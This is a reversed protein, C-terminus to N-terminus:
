ESVSFDTYYVYLLIDTMGATEIDRNAAEDRLNLTLEWFSNIFPRDKFRNNEYVAPDFNAYKQGQFFPNIVATIPPFRYFEKLGDQGRVTATGRMTLYLRAVRDGLGTGQLDAEIHDIKHTGTRPSVQDFTTSFPVAIYGHGDILGPDTLRKRFEGANGNVSEEGGDAASRPIRFIDHALSIIALRLEPLGNEEEFDRYARQLDLVYNELNDDGRKALRALFLEGRPGYSQNTYYELVRTARYADTLADEFSRDADLVAANRYIRVNADNRAVEVNILLQDAESQQANLRIVSQQQSRVKSMAIRVSLEARQLNLRSNLLEVMLTDIQARSNALTPGPSECSGTFVGAADAANDLCCGAIAKDFDAGRRVDSIATETARIENEKTTIEDNAAGQMGAIVGGGIALAAGAVVGAVGIWGGMAGAGIASFSDRAVGISRDILAMEREAQAIDQNLESVQTEINSVQGAVEFQINAIDVRADCEDQVRQREIEAEAFLNRIARISLQVELRADDVLGISQFIAGNQFAACPNRIAKADANLEMYKEIAPYIRGDLDGVFTGCLSALENEYQNRVRALEAQFQAADTDFERGSDIARDEREGAVRLSELSRDILVRVVNSDDPGLIAFPVYDPALGFNQLNDSIALYDTRMTALAVKYALQANELEVRMGDRAASQRVPLRDIARKMTQSLASSELFAEAYSREIVTRALGPRNFQQYRQAIRGAAKAKNTSALVLRSFYTAVSEPSIFNGEPNEMVRFLTPSLRSFRDLVLQSYQMSRYLLQMEYGAGGSLSIGDPEFLDGDFTGSAAGAIDFRSGVARTFADDGLMLLLEAYNREFGNWPIADRVEGPELPPYDYASFQDELSQDVLRRIADTLNMRHTASIHILCDMRGRLKEIEEPAYCYPNLDVGTTCIAPVFGVSRGSSNRFRTKYRFAQDLSGLLSSFSPKDVLPEYLRQRAFLNARDFECFVRESDVDGHVDVCVRPPDLTASGDAQWARLVVDCTGRLDECDAGVCDCSEERGPCRQAGQCDNYDVEFGYPTVFYTVRSEAPCAEAGDLSQRWAPPGGNFRGTDHCFWHAAFPGSDENNILNPEDGRLVGNLLFGAVDSANGANVSPFGIEELLGQDCELAVLDSPMAPVAPVLGPRYDEATLEAGARDLVVIGYSTIKERQGNLGVFGDFSEKVILIMTRGNLLIGDVLEIRRTRARGDPIPNASAVSRNLARAMDSTPALPFRAERCESRTRRGDADLATGQLFDTVLWPTPHPEYSDGGAACGDDGPLFRGGLVMTADFTTIPVICADDRGMECGSPDLGFDMTAGPNGPYQLSLRSEIRGSMRLPRDENSSLNLTLPLEVVGTPIRVTASADTYTVVGPGPVNANPDAYAYCEVGAAPNFTRCLARTGPESWTNKLTAHLLALLQDVSVAGSNRFEQWKVLFANNTARATNVNPARRWQALETDDFNIIGFLSGTWQGDPRSSYALPLSRQGLAANGIELRGEWRILEANFASAVRLTTRGRSPVIVEIERVVADVESTEALTLWFLPNEVEVTRGDRDFTSHDTKRIKFVQPEDTNNEIDFNAATQNNTFELLQTSLKFGEGVVAPPAPTESPQATVMCVGEHGDTTRCTQGSLCGGGGVTCRQRCVKQSCAADDDCEFSDECTSYCGGAICTKYEPCEADSTCVPATEGESLCTGRDCAKTGLCGSLLGEDSCRRFSGDPLPIDDTCPSYCPPDLPPVLKATCRRSADCALVRSGGLPEAECSLDAFCGCDRQGQPCDAEQCTRDPACSLSGTCAGDARCPCSLDGEVCAPRVCTQSADCVLPDDCGQVEATCPCSLEGPPCAPSRECMSVGVNCTLGLDCGGSPLCGCGLSGTLCAPEPVSLDAGGLGDGGPGAPPSSRPDDTCGFLAACVLLARLTTKTTM